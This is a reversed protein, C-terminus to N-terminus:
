ISVPLSTGRVDRAPVLRPLGREHPESLNDAVAVLPAKGRKIPPLFEGHGNETSLGAGRASSGVLRCPHGDVATKGRTLTGDDVDGFAARPQPDLVRLEDFRVEVQFEVARGGAPGALNGPLLAVQDPDLENLCLFARDPLRSAAIERRDGRRSGHDPAIRHLLRRSSHFWRDPWGNDPLSIVIAM